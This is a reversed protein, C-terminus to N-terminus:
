GLEFGHALNLALLEAPTCRAIEEARKVVRLIWHSSADLEQVLEPLEGPTIWRHDMHEPSVQIRGPDAITGCYVVGILENEPRKEGRYFHTTGVLFEIQVRVGLEERVERRAAEEFGEGQNVRGTVCEWVGGAFDRELVRKLLLYREWSPDRILVGVGGIFRGIKM